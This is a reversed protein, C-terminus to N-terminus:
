SGWKDILTGVGYFVLFLLPITAVAAIVHLAGLPDVVAFAIFGVLVAVTFVVVFGALIRESDDM